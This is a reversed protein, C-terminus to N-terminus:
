INKNRKKKKRFDVGNHAKISSTMLKGKKTLGFNEYTGDPNRTFKAYGDRSEYHAETREGKRRFEVGDYWFCNERRGSNKIIM